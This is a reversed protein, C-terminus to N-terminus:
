DDEEGECMAEEAMHALQSAIGALEWPSVGEDDVELSGDDDNIKIIISRSALQSDLDAVAETEEDSMPEVKPTEDSM